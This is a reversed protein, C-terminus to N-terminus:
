SEYQLVGVISEISQLPEFACWVWVLWVWSLGPAWYDRHNSLRLLADAITNGNANVNNGAESPRRFEDNLLSHFAMLDKWKPSGIVVVATEVEHMCFNFPAKCHAANTDVQEPLSRASM